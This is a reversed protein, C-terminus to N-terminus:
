KTIITIGYDKAEKRDIVIAEIELGTNAEFAMCMEEVDETAFKIWNDQIRKTEAEQPSPKGKSDMKDGSLNNILSAM